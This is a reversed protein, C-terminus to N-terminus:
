FPLLVAVGPRLVQPRFLLGLASFASVLNGSEGHIRAWAGGPSLGSEGGSRASRLPSRSVHSVIDPSIDRRDCIGLHRFKGAQRRSSSRHGARRDRLGARGVSAPAFLKHRQVLREKDPGSDGDDIGPLSDHSLIHRCVHRCQHHHGSLAAHNGPEYLHPGHHDFRHQRVHLGFIERVQRKSQRHAARHLDYLDRNDSLDAPLQDLGVGLNYVSYASGFPMLMFGGTTMLATTAFALLYKPVTATELMHRLPNHDQKLLLHANVPKMFFLIVLGAVIGVAVIMLFPAHWNWANALYLGIPIGLVQSAAFATQVFGMVRGRLEFPFLDTAIALVVSGIVGGFLGTV